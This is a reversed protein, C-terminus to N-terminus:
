VFFTPVGGKKQAIIYNYKIKFPTIATSELGSGSPLLKIVPVVAM